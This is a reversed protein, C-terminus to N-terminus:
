KESVLDCKNVLLLNAFELQDILLHAITRQEGEQEDWGRAARLEWRWRLSVGRLTHRFQWLPIWAFGRSISNIEVLPFIFM